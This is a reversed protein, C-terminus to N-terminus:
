CVISSVQMIQRLKNARASTTQQVTDWAEDVAMLRAKLSARRPTAEIGESDVLTQGTERIWEVERRRLAVEAVLETELRRLVDEPEGGSGNALLRELRLGVQGAWM